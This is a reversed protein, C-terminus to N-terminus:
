QEVVVQILKGQRTRQLRQVYSVTLPIRGLFQRASTLLTDERSSELHPGLLLIQVSGDKMAIIQFQGVEPFEKFLHNWFLCSIIRGDSLKLTGAARGHLQGLARVGSEDESGPNSSGLDGIDYRLFPTGRCVTSSWVLRGVTGPPVPRGSEDLVEVLVYPRLVRLPEAEGAQYAMASLERGGYLNLIPVGFAQEFARTQTEFLMEGGNWATRISNVRTRNTRAWYERAVFELMSTFGFVAVRPHRTVLNLFADVTGEDLAYGDVIWDNRLWASLRARPSRQKGIDRESGWLGVTAMGPRWGFKWRCYLRTAITNRLMAPDHLYPTPEGTSGGTASVTGEIRLRSRMESPHFRTKLDEKTLIPLAEWSRMLEEGTRFRSAERWEPLADARSGFYKVQALLRSGLDIRASDPPLAACREIEDWASRLGKATIYARWLAASLM